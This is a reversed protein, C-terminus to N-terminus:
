RVMEEILQLMALEQKRSLLTNILVNNAIFRIYCFYLLDIDKDPVKYSTDKKLVRLLDLLKENNRKIEESQIEQNMRDCLIYIEEVKEM